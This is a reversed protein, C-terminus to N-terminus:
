TGAPREDFWGNLVLERLSAAHRQSEEYRERFREASLQNGAAEFRRALRESLDAQEELARISSWLVDELNSDYRAMLAEPTYAHGVRCVFRTTAGRGHEWLAGGCEPCTFGSARGDETPSEDVQGVPEPTTELDETLSTAFRALDGATAVLDADVRELTRAPMSPHLAEEPDQVLVRGGAEKVEAAGASGDSGTGSMVVAITNRGYARAATRFLPDVAPRLANERPGHTVRMAGDAVLLHHDPPAVYVRGPLMREGDAPRMAPLPSSRGLIRDLASEGAPPFHVVVLVAAALGPGLASVFSRLPEIGGASAGVCIVARPLEPHIAATEFPADARQDATEDADGTIAAPDNV